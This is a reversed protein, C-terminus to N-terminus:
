RSLAAVLPAAEFAKVLPRAAPGYSSMDIALEPFIDFIEEQVAADFTPLTMEGPYYSECAVGNAIVVQHRDFLLHCYTIERFSADAWITKSNILDKAAVLVEEVGFLLQAWTNAINIRHQPSVLLDQVAGFAGTRLRVPCHRGTAPVRRAGSWRVPQPGDDQTIVLDGAEIEEVPRPGQPTEILTGAAFCPVQEVEVLGTDTNGNTDEVTYTFYVTEADADGQVQITGDPAVSLIQGTALTVTPTVSLDVGNIHTITLTPGATSSDNDLVDVFRTDNHGLAVEDDRAVITSQVSGGAILLNSDYSSDGTDAIGIKIINSTNPNVPAVFTLTITMGDMETNYQDGTNDLYLNQTQGGNINGISATGNGVSVQAEVGNVWVGVVDNYISNIFEPYEESSLVFDITITDGQPTFDVVLYSSDFTSAGAIANFDADGDAGSTNTTTSGSVNTNTTGSNNTFSEANGTSFIVGTGGPTAFPSVSDGDAYIGASNPDGFYTASNVTVGSGFIEAAMLDAPTDTVTPDALIEAVTEIPLETATAM